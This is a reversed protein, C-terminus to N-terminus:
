VFKKSINQSFIKFQGKDICYNMNKMFERENINIKDASEVVSISEGKLLTNKFIQFEKHLILYSSIDFMKSLFIYVKIYRKSFCADFKKIDINKILSSCFYYKYPFLKIKVYQKTQKLNQYNNSNLNFEPVKVDKSNLNKNLKLVPSMINNSFLNRDILFNVNKKNQSIPLDIKNLLVLSKDNELDNSKSLINPKDLVAEINQKTQTKIKSGFSLYNPKPRHYQKDNEINLNNFLSHINKNNNSKNKEIKTGPFYKVKQQFNNKKEKLNVFLLEVVKRSGEAFKFINAIKKFVFFVAMLEPLGEAILSFIKKYKRTYLIIGSELYLNLSYIRSTSGENILDKKNFTTYSDGDLRSLGWYNSRLINKSIWGQDDLLIHKKLYLRVIKNSFKSIQYFTHKYSVIIPKKIKEPQFQVVPYFFEVELSNNEGIKNKITKETTCYTNNENYDIGNECLYLDMRVHKMFSSIWSGGMELNEMEICYLQNLPVSIYYINSKNAMSTYNCLRYNLIKQNVNFTDSTSNRQGSYYNIIPYILGTHNIYNNDNNIIRWPIFIKEEGFKIKNHNETPISSMAVIPYLRSIDDLNIIVFIIICLIISLISLIGGLITYLKAKGDTYFNYKTGFLDCYKIIESLM